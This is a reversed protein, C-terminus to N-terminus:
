ADEGVFAEPAPLGGLIGGVVDRQQAFDSGEARYGTQLTHADQEM